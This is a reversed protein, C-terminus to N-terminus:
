LFDELVPAGPPGGELLPSIGQQAVSAMEQGPATAM